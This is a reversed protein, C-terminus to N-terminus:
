TPIGDGIFAKHQTRNTDRRLADALREAVEGYEEEWAYDADAKLKAQTKELEDAFSYNAQQCRWYVQEMHKVIRHDLDQATFILYGDGEEWEDPKWYVCFYGGAESFRLRIHHDIAALGNAVSQVDDEVEVLQGGRAAALQTLSAPRIEM